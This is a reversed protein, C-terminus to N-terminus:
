YICSCLFYRYGNLNWNFLVNEDIQSDNYDSTFINIGKKKFFISLIGKNMVLQKLMSVNGTGTGLELVRKDKFLNMNEM